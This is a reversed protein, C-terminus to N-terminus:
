LKDVESQVDSNTALPFTEKTICYLIVDGVVKTSKNYVILLSYSIDTIQTGSFVTPASFNSIIQVYDGNNTASCGTCKLELSTNEDLLMLESNSDYKLYNKLRLTFDTDGLIVKDVINKIEDIKYTFYFVSAVGNGELEEQVGPVTYIYGEYDCEDPGKITIDLSLKNPVATSIIEEIEGSTVIQNENVQNYTLEEYESTLNSVQVISNIISRDGLPIVTAESGGEGSNGSVAINGKDDRYIILQEYINKDYTNLTFIKGKSIILSYEPTSYSNGRITIFVSVTSIPIILHYGYYNNLAFDKKILFNNDQWEGKGSNSVLIQGNIGNSPVFNFEKGQTVLKEKGGEKLLAIDEVKVEGSSIANNLGTETTANIFNISM